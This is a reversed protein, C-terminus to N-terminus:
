YGLRNIEALGQQTEANNPNLQLSKEWYRKAKVYDKSVFYAGGASYWIGADTSDISLAKEMNAIAETYKGQRGFDSAINVYKNALSTFFPKDIKNDPFKERTLKLQAEAKEYDPYMIYTNAINLYPYLWDPNIEKARNLYKLALNLDTMRKQEDKEERAIETLNMGANNNALASNPVVTVDHIWLTADNKWDKNRSFTVTFCTILLIGTVSYFVYRRNRISSIKGIFFLILFAIVMVVGLSSHYLLREGMTAGIDMVLNSVLFLFCLYFLLAFALPHKKKLLIVTVAIMGTYILISLWVSVDNFSKYPITNYGYDASLPYPILLLVLEKLLVFIKTAWKEAATALIYPNNLIETSQTSNIGVSSVRIIFYVIFVALYPLAATVAPKLKENRFLYLSVPILLLLTVAYEKALLALFFYVLGSILSSRKKNESYRFVSIFTLTIFLLSLIEDRSKINAVVETHIPHITFLLVTFFALLSNGRFIYKSFLQLLFFLSLAYLLVNILHRVVTGGGFFQQDIAFTAISLPRYRGGSLLNSDTTQKILSEYIDSSFIHPLGSIGKTISPNMLIVYRDDLAYENSLTNIYFVIGTVVILIWQIHFSPMQFISHDIRKKSINKEPQRIPKKTM